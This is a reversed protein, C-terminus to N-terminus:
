KGLSQKPSPHESPQHTTTHLLCTGKQSHFTTTTSPSIHPDPLLFPHASPPACSDFPLVRCDAVSCGCQERTTRPPRQPTLQLEQTLLHPLDGPSHQPAPLPRPWEMLLTHVGHSLQSTQLPASHHTRWSKGLSSHPTTQQMDYPGGLLTNSEQSHCM